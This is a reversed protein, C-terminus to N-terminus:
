PFKIVLDFWNPQARRSISMRLRQWQSSQDKSIGLDSRRPM